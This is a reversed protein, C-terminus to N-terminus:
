SGVLDPFKYSTYTYDMVSMVISFYRM